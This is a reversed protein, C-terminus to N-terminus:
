QTITHSCLGKCKCLSICPQNNTCCKCPPKCETTTCGCYALAPLKTSISPLTTYVPVPVASPVIQKWGWGDPSVIHADRHVCNAWIHGSQFVTAYFMITIIYFTCALINLVICFNEAYRIHLGFYTNIYLMVLQPCITLTERSTSSCIPVLMTWM